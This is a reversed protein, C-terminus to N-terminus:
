SRRGIRAFGGAIWAAAFRLCHAASDEWAFHGCDLVDCNNARAIIEQVGRPGDSVLNSGPISWVVEQTMITGLMVADRARLGDIFPTALKRKGVETM